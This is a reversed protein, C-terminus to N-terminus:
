KKNFLYFSKGFKRSKQRRAESDQGEDPSDSDNFDFELEVPKSEESEAEMEQVEEKLDESAEELFQETDDAIPLKSRILKISSQLVGVEKKLQSEKVATQQNIRSIKENVTQMHKRIAAEQGRLFETRREILRDLEKELEREAEKEKELLERLTSVTEVLSTLEKKDILMPKVMAEKKADIKGGSFVALNQQIALISNQLMEIEKKLQAEKAATQKSIATLKGSVSGIHDSVKSDKSGKGQRQEAILSHLDSILREENAKERDLLSKMEKLTALIQEFEKKNFLNADKGISSLLKPGGAQSEMGTEEEEAMLPNEGSDDMM